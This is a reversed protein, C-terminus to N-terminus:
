VSLSNLVELAKELDQSNVFIDDHYYAAVVNCSINEKALANSFAATFGVAELSSHISLTIWSAIFTYNISLTDAYNKRLILTKGETEKFM